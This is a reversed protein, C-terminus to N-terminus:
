NNGICFAWTQDDVKCQPLNDPNNPGNIICTKYQQNYWSYVQLCPRGINTFVKKFKSNVILNIIIIKLIKNFVRAYNYIQIQLTMMLLMGCTLV